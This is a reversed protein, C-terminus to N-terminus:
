STSAFSGSPCMRRNSSASRDAHRDVFGGAV